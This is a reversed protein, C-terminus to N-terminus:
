LFKKFGGSIAVIASVKSTLIRTLFNYRNIHIEWITKKTLFSVFLLPLEDRSYILDFNPHSLCYFFSVLSFFFNQLWFGVRGFDNLDFTPLTEIKFNKELSYYSFIDAKIHNNRRPVLLIVEAEIQALAECMKAIQLGHANETPVRVNALYIIKM